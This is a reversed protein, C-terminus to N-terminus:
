YRLSCIFLERHLLDIWIGATDLEKQAAFSFGYLRAKHVSERIRNIVKKYEVIEAPTVYANHIMTKLTDEASEIKKEYEKM